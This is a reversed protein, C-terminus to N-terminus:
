CRKDETKLCPSDVSWPEQFHSSQSDQSKESEIKKQEVLYHAWKLADIMSNPNAQNLNFLDKATGHNVSTRVFPLGLTIQAGSDQGHVTKFPILGQDHYLCVYVSYRNWNKPLFATDPVLPGEIPIHPVEELAPCVVENEFHGILSDEGAHPNLGLLGIPKARLSPLSSTFRHTHLLAEVLFEKTLVVPIDKLPIHQTTLLVNFKEGVFLMFLDSSACKSKLLETHGLFPFSSNMMGIKSLPATVVGDMKNTLCLHTVENFWSTPHPKMVWDILSGVPLPNHSLVENWHNVPILHFKKKLLNLHDQPCHASRCIIHRVKPDPGMQDLAKATVETGIGDIDGTTISITYYKM